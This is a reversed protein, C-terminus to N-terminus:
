LLHNYTGVKANHMTMITGSGCIRCKLSFYYAALDRLNTRMVVEVCCATSHWKNYKILESLNTSDNQGTNYDRMTEWILIFLYFFHDIVINSLTIVHVGFINLLVHHLVNIAASDAFPGRSESQLEKDM